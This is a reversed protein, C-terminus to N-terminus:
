LWATCDSPTVGTEHHHPSECHMYESSTSFMKKEGNQCIAVTQTTHSHIDKMGTDFHEGGVCVCSGPFVMLPYTIGKHCVLALEGARVCAPLPMLLSGVGGEFHLMVAM